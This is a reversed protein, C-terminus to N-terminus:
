DSADTRLVFPKTTDIHHLQLDAVLAEKLRNFAAIETETWQLPHKSGAKTNERPLKLKEQLPAALNAFNRVYGSYYTCVGLFARLSSVNPPIQWLQVAALKGPAPSRKGRGLVHGVFEVQRMFLKVKRLDSVWRDRYLAELTERVDKAHSRLYEENTQGPQRKTSM